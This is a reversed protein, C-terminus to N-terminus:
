KYYIKKGNVIYFGNQPTLIERGQMDYVKSDNNKDYSISEIGTPVVKFTYSISEAALYNDNGSQSVTITAEGTAKCTARVKGDKKSLPLITVDSTTYTLLLGSTVTADFEIVDGVELDTYDIEWTIEQPAKEITLIGNVYNFSYNAAEGGSVTLAYTGANSTKTAKTSVIPASSLESEDENNVFGEYSITFEPNDDGYVKTQNDATVTIIAKKITYEYPFSNHYTEGDFSYDLEINKTYTGADVMTELNSMYIPFATDYTINQVHGTYSFNADFSGLSTIPAYSSSWGKTAKYTDAFFVYVLSGEATGSMFSTNGNMMPPYLALCILQELSSCNGFSSTHISKLTAPLYVSKLSSCGWFQNAGIAKVDNGIILKSLNVQDMFPSYGYRTSSDYSVSHGLYLSELPCDVFMGKGAKSSSGSDSAYGLSLTADSDEIILNALRMCGNFSYSGISTVSAPITMDTLSSCEYFVYTDMTKLTSPLTIEALNSCYAFASKGISTVGEPIILSEIGTCGRLLQAGIDTWKENIIFDQLSPILAFPSYGYRTSSDYSIKRGVYAFALPCDFFLGKGATNSTGSDSGYGLSLTEDSDEIILNALGMCGNFSYNGISTVSAPITMDTLSSCEYFVYTDMTKLTSPLTIEALNTCYAFASKGISTVGEPIILSEIGTCGRLLQSGIYAVKDNMIYNHLSPIQAFPSYGYRTSSDYSINRGVYVSALPCDYFLSNGDRSTSGSDSGYGLSLTEESDEIILNTIGTCGGFSYSGISTVSAPITMETLSSCGYFVYTDMTKLTSPLTIEALNSCDIFASKGISTVREPITLSEIGTCGRLLQASISTVPEGFTISTLSATRAFPSYGYQMNTNYNLHRGLYVSTLPCDSFLSKGEKSTSGSNSGFGLSLTEECDEITVSTMSTCGNFAFNGISTVHAPITYEQFGTCNLFAGNGITKVSEPLGMSEQTLAKCGAFAYDGVSIPACESNYNLEELKSCNFFLYSQISTVPNGFRVKTLPSSDFPTYGYQQTNKYSLNRGLFVSNLPCDYFLGKGLGSAQYYNYGLSLTEESEEITLESLATCGNFAFNGISKVSPKVIVNSLKECGVFAYNGVTTVHNPITYGLLSTCYGFAYEGITNVTEPFKIDPETLSKCGYFAYAKIETPSCKSNYEITTFSSCNMFLYSQISSVPNGLRAKKLSGNNAFPSFGNNNDAKYSLNRGIFVSNLPCDYFLGKGGGSAHYYNYGLSLTEESEEITLESLATCGNFAFNGISKVMPHVVLNKISSNQFAGEGISTVGTPISISTLNKCGSFCYDSITETKENLTITKAGFGCFAYNSLETIHSPVTYSSISNNGYFVNGPMRTVNSGFTISKLNAQNAFPSYGYKSDVYYNLPRRIEVSTLQCDEFLGHASGKSSGYGLWLTNNSEPFSVKTIGYCGAFAYNGVSTIWYPIAFSTMGNCGSFAREGIYTILKSTFNVGTLNTCGVFAYSGIGVVTYTKGNYTVTAPIGVMGTYKNNTQSYYTVEVTMNTSSTIYYYVGNSEFSYPFAQLTTLLILFLLLGVRKM